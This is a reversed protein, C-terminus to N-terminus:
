EKQRFSALPKAAPEGSFSGDAPVQELKTQKASASRVQYCLVVNLFGKGPKPGTTAALCARCVLSLQAEWMTWRMWPQARANGLLRSFCAEALGAKVLLQSSAKRFVALRPESPLSKIKSRRSEAPLLELLAGHCSLCYHNGQEASCAGQGQLDTWHLSHERAYICFPNELSRPCCLM